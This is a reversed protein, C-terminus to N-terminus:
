APPGTSREANRRWVRFLDPLMMGFANLGCPCPREWMKLEPTWRLCAENHRCAGGAM